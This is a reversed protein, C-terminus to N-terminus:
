GTLLNEKTHFNNEWLLMQIQFNQIKLYNMALIYIEFKSCGYDKGDSVQLRRLKDM